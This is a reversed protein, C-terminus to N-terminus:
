GHWGGAATFAAVPSESLCRSERRRAGTVRQSTAELREPADSATRPRGQVPERSQAVGRARDHRGIADAATRSHAANTCSYSRPLLEGVGVIKM